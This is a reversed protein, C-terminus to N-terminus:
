MQIFKLGSLRSNPTKLIRTYLFGTIIHTYPYFFHIRVISLYMSFLKFSSQKDEFSWGAPYLRPSFLLRSEEWSSIKAWHLCKFVWCIIRIKNLRGGVGWGGNGAVERARLATDNLPPKNNGQPMYMFTAESKEPLWLVMGQRTTTAPHDDVSWMTPKSRHSM